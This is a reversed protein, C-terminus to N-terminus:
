LTRSHNIDALLQYSNKFNDDNRPCASVLEMLLNKIEILFLRETKQFYVPVPDMSCDCNEVGTINDEIRIPSFRLLGEPTIFISDARLSLYNYNLGVNADTTSKFFLYTQCASQLVYM